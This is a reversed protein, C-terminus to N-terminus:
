SHPCTQDYVAQGAAVLATLAAAAAAGVGPIFPAVGAVLQIVPKATPWISCFDPPAPAATGPPTPYVLNANIITRMENAANNSLAM